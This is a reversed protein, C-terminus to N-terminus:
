LSFLSLCICNHVDFPLIVQGFSFKILIATVCKYLIFGLKLHKAQISESRANSVIEHGSSVDFNSFPFYSMICTNECQLSM